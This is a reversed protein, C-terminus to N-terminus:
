PHFKLLTSFQKVQAITTIKSPSRIKEMRFYSTQLLLQTEENKQSCGSPTYSDFKM